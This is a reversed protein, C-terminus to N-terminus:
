NGSRADVAFAVSHHRGGEDMVTLRHAGSETLLLKGGADPTVRRGDLLWYVPGQAGRVALQLSVHRQHPAPRLRSADNLGVIRLTAAPTGGTPACGPQWDPIRQDAPLWGALWPQLLTPWRATDRPQGHGCGSVTRLGSAPDIWLTQRLSSGDIRDPRTPPVAGALSWASRRRHCMPAPTDVAATGLPWCIDVPHVTAPRARSPVVERPLAAAIDKLLPAAVNAGFFGPNPTGDPRGLWVGLAYRGSVGVAWADRFGFSTGTKWALPAAGGGEVFPRDPHGGGELIDRVIWAAGESMLRAEEIPADPTLRPKGAVGGAALARYGGVLEELTVGAGGLILSLNPQEGTAIRPKIGGETLRAAFRAPGIQDLLDVAPVNLSRQLAESVSVPGSFDAQFNGPQYGGFAQPADILLSESHILGDDLAMAYLFPKLASGPSRVGRVMDVHAGRANDGFDASGAYARVELTAADVVLAAISVRPPLVSARDALLREVTAQLERDLTSAVRTLGASGARRAQGRLREAALPALWAGQLRQAIVPEIRADAVVEPSWVGFRELRALVRDRAAQAAQPARDPRLRSPARPLTALLAAEAHSLERSPKGLYARSAMEVGEVIGGMPAHNLYLTLIDDKSLRWELQLARVIQRLKGRPTRPVPELIRAVQMTLTSGGSVIRGTTAWQWAARALSAPNVGPHWRFGRDEYGLLAEIYRPSVDAPSVPYRWAGDSGPWARLPSGDRALVIFGDNGAPLPPPFLRDLAWLLACLAFLLSWRPHRRIFAGVAARSM